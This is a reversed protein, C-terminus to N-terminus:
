RSLFLNPSPGQCLGRKEWNYDAPELTFSGFHLPACTPM